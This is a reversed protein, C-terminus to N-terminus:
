RLCFFAFSSLSVLRVTRGSFSSPFLLRSPPSSFSSFFLRRLSSSFFFSPSGLRHPYRVSDFPSGHQLYWQQETCELGAGAALTRLPFIEDRCGPKCAKTKQVVREPSSGRLHRRIVPVARGGVRARRTVVLSGGWQRGGGDRERAGHHHHHHVCSEVSSVSNDSLVCLPVTPCSKVRIELVVRSRTQRDTESGNRASVWESTGMTQPPPLPPPVETPTSHSFSHFFSIFSFSFFHVFFSISFSSFPLFGGSFFFRAM